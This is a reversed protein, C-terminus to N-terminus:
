LEQVLLYAEKMSLSSIHRLRSGTCHGPPPLQGLVIEGTTVTNHSESVGAGTTVLALHDLLTEQSAAVFVLAVSMFVLAGSAHLVGKQFISTSQLTASLSYLSPM